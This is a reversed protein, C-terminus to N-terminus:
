LSGRFRGVGLAIYRGLVALMAALSGAIIAYDVGRLRSDHLYTRERSGSFAKSQLVVELQQSKTMAGLILPVALRAYVRMRGLLGMKEVALGRMRQADIISRVDSLLMPFFRLTASLVFAIKYPVRARVLGAILSDISTTFILLPALLTLVITKLSANVGFMVGERTMRAGGIGWLTDPVQWLLTLDTQGTLSKVYQVNFFGHTLLLIFYFPLMIRFISKLYSGAVRGLVCLLFVAVALAAQLLPRDWVLTITTLSGVFCLKARVDIAAFLSDRALDSYHTDSM